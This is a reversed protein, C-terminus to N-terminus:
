KHALLLLLHKAQEQRRRQQEAASELIRKGVVSIALGWKQDAVFLGFWVGGIASGGGDGGEDGDKAEEKGGHLRRRKFARLLRRM